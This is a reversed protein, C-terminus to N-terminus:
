SCYDHKEKRKQQYIEDVLRLNALADSIDGLPSRNESIAALLEEMELNWSTDPFPYQWITAQPPGMQPLMKYLSLQELGYSGGLGDIQLKGSKGYIEFCFTNKWETWSAHLYAIKGDTTQMTLFCNDEVEGSWYYRPLIGYVTTFEGLFWHALDILHSGQDLLEGGGSIEMNFRWEKEYSLRGGHGYRGRVFMLPGIEGRDVLKKAQWIAPHFRHNFGVKIKLNRKAAETAIPELEGANRAGPKELLVHKGTKVAMLALSALQDHTTAIVIIEAESNIVEAASTMVKGGFEACLTEAKKIELDAVAILRNEKKNVISSARKRGILGCGIIGFKM